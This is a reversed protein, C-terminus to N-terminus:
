LRSIFVQMKNKLKLFYLLTSNECLTLKCKATFSLCVWEFSKPNKQIPFKKQVQGLSTVVIETEFSM